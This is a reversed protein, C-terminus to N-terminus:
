SISDRRAAVFTTTAVSCIREYGNRDTTIRELLFRRNGSNGDTETTGGGGMARSDWACPYLASVCPEQRVRIRVSLFLYCGIRRTARGVRHRALLEILFIFRAVGCPDDERGRLLDTRM